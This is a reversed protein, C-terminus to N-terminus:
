FMYRGDFAPEGLPLEMVVASAPLQRIYGYVEPVTEGVGISPPLAVLGAQTFEVSGQDIPIPVATAEVLILAGAVAPLWKWRRELAAVAFAVLAALGLTAVIAYRAPVRIGDFGPAFNYFAAYLGADAVVRGKARVQPGFSMAIAFLTTLLFFGVPSSVFRALSIRTDRSAALLIASAVAAVILLRPLDTIKLGPLRISYGLLLTVILLAVIAAAAHIYRRTKAPRPVSGDRDEGDATGKVAAWAALAVITLGPFLLGEARPFANAIGGWLRLNPDATFYAYVDASFRRTEALSRPSFGLRRLELYPLLFPVTAGVVIACTAAVRLMARRDRWLGRTTLEWVIYLFVVPSFFLLYYGCSLNQLIWAAGAGALPRIQGTTFHRRLGYLVFPMWAASLVQLHPLSAIRVPTFAFALGAVFGATRSGTLERGLLYMGLGSLVFTSLFVFNYGPIPNGTALYIPLAAIGQPLFHESYALALPHPAFINAHWWGRGLHTADWAMVWATFLPDGFDGPIHHGLGTALPWTLGITLAFYLLTAVSASFGPQKV